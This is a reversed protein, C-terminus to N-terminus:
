KLRRSLSRIGCLRNTFESEFALPIRYRNTASFRGLDLMVCKTVAPGPDDTTVTVTVKEETDRWKRVNRGKGIKGEAIRRQLADEPTEGERVDDKAASVFLSFLLFVGFM